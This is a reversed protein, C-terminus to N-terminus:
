FEKTKSFPVSSPQNSVAYAVGSGIAGLAVVGVALGTWFQWRKYVPKATALAPAGAPPAPSLAPSATPASAPATPVIARATNADEAEKIFRKRKEVTATDLSPFLTQHQHYTALAATYDGLRHQTRGINLLIRQVPRRGYAAQYETLATSYNHADYADTGAYDHQRCIVDRTCDDETVTDALVEAASLLVLLGTLCATTRARAISFGLETM